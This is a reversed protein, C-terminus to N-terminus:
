ACVGAIHTTDSTFDSSSFRGDLDDIEKGDKEVGDDDYGKAKDALDNMEDTVNLKFDDAMAGLATGYSSCLESKTTTHFVGTGVALAIVVALTFVAIAATPLAPLHRATSSTQRRHNPWAGPTPTALRTAPGGDAGPSSTTVALQPNRAHLAPFVTDLLDHHAALAVDLPESWSLATVEGVTDGNEAPQISVAAEYIGHTDNGVGVVVRGHERHRYHPLMPGPQATEAVGPLNSIVQAADEAPLASRFSQTTRLVHEDHNKRAQRWLGRFPLAVLALAAEAVGDVVKDFLWIGLGVVAIVALVILLTM